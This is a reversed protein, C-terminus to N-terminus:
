QRGLAVGNSTALGIIPGHLFLFSRVPCGCPTARVRRIPLCPDGHTAMREYVPGHSLYEVQPYQPFRVRRCSLLSPRQRPVGEVPGPQPAPEPHHASDFWQGRPACSPQQRRLCRRERKAWAFGCQQANSGSGAGNSIEGGKTIDKRGPGCGPGTFNRVPGASWVGSRYKSQHQCTPLGPGTLFEVKRSV